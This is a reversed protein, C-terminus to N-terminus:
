AALDKARKQFVDPLMDRLQYARLEPVFEGWSTIAQPRINLKRALEASSGFHRIADEVLIKLPQTEKM